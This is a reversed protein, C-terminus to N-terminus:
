TLTEESLALLLQYTNPACKRTNLRCGCALSRAIVTIVDILQAAQQMHSALHLAHKQITQAAKVWSRNAKEWCSILLLWHQVLMALLKAYLECLIRHPKQSAWEDIQGHSKWLKFLLEIQWRATMLVLAERLSLREQPLNTVLITWDALALTRASVAQQRRRAEDRLRRRRQEAVEQPVRIALLRAPLQHRGGLLVPLDIVSSQQAQLLDLTNWRTGNAEFIATQSPLRSLWFVGRDTRAQLTNLDWYGLDEM